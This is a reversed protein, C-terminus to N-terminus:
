KIVRLPSDFIYDKYGTDTNVFAVLLVYTAPPIVSTDTDELRLELVNNNLLLGGSYVVVNKTTRIEWTAGETLEDILAGGEKEFDYFISEGQRITM